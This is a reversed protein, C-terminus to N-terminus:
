KGQAELGVQTLLRRAAGLACNLEDLTGLMEFVASSKSCRSNNFLASTGKDGTRTYLRRRAAM